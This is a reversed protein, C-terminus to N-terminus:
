LELGSLDGKNAKLKDYYVEFRDKLADVSNGLEEAESKLEKAKEGLMETLPIEKLEAQLAKVDEMKAEIAKKYAMATDRLEANDMKEAEAKCDALSKNEDASSGCGTVSLVCATLVVLCM